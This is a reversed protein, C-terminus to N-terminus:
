QNELVERPNLSKQIPELGKKALEKFVGSHLHDSDASKNIALQLLHQNGDVKSITLATHDDATHPLLLKHLKKEFHLVSIKRSCEPSKKTIIWPEGMGRSYCILARM